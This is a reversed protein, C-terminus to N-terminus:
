VKAYYEMQKKFSHMNAKMFILNQSLIVRNIRPKHSILGCTNYFVKSLSDLSVLKMGYLDGRLM